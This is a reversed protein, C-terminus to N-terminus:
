TPDQLTGLQISVDRSHTKNPTQQPEITADEGHLCKLLPNISGSEPLSHVARKQGHNRRAKVEGLDLIEATYFQLQFSICSHRQHRDSTRQHEKSVYEM